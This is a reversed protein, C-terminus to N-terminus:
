EEQRVEKGLPLMTPLVELTKRVKDEMGPKPYYIHDIDAKLLTEDVFREHCQLKEEAIELEDMTVLKLTFGKERLETLRLAALPHDLDVKLHWLNYARPDM